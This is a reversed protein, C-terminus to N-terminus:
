SSKSTSSIIELYMMITKMLEIGILILLFQAFVEHVIECPVSDRGREPSFSIRRREYLGRFIASAFQIDDYLIVLSLLFLLM